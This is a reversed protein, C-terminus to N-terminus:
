ALIKQLYLRVQRDLFLKPNFESQFKKEALSILNNLTYKKWKLLIFINIYDRWKGHGNSIIHTKKSAFKHFHEKDLLDLYPPLM